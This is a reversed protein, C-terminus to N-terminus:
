WIHGMHAVHGVWRMRRSKNNIEIKSSYNHIEENHLKIWVGQFKGGRLNLYERLICNEFKRVSDGRKIHSVL